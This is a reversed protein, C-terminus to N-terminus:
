ETWSGDGLTFTFVLSLFIRQFSLAKHPAANQGGICWFVGLFVGPQVIAYLLAVFLGNRSKVCLFLCYSKSM